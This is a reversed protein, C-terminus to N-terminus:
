LVDYLYRKFKINYADDAEIRNGGFIYLPVDIPPVNDQRCVVKMDCGNAFYLMPIVAEDYDMEVNVTGTCNHFIATQAKVTEGDFHKGVFINDRDYGTFERKIFDIAPFGNELCWQYNRKYVGIMDDKTGCSLLERYAETCGGTKGYARKLEDLCEMATIKQVAM